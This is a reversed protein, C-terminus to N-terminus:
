QSTIGAAKIVKTWKNIENQVYATAQEPTNGILDAGYDKFRAQM